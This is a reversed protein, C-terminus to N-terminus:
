VALKLATTARHRESAVATANCGPEASVPLACRISNCVGEWGAKARQEKRQKQIQFDIWTPRTSMPM